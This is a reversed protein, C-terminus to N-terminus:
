SWFATNAPDATSAWFEAVKGNQIRMVHVASASLTKGDREASEHILMAAHTDNGLYENVKIGFTGGTMEMLSGLFGFVGEVGTKDGNLPAVDNIHWVTDSALLGGITEMDGTSFAEYAQRAIDTPHM